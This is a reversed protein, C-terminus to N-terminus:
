YNFLLHDFIRVSNGWNDSVLAAEKIEQIQGFDNRCKNSNNNDTQFTNNTYAGLDHCTPGNNLGKGAAQAWSSSPKPSTSITTQDCNSIQRSPNPWHNNHNGNSTSSGWESTTSTIPPLPGWGSTGGSLSDEGGLLGM